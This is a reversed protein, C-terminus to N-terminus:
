GRSSCCYRLREVELSGRKRCADGLPGSDLVVIRAVRLAGREIAAVPEQTDGIPDDDGTCLAKILGPATKAMPEWTAKPLVGGFNRGTPRYEKLGIDKSHLSVRFYEPDTTSVCLTQHFPRLDPTWTGFLPDVELEVGEAVEWPNDDPRDNVFCTVDLPGITVAYLM